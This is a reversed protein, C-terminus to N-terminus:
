PTPCSGSPLVQVIDRVYLHRTVGRRHLVSPPDASVDGYVRVLAPLALQLVGTVALRERQQAAQAQYTPWWLTDGGIGDCPRFLDQGAASWLNGVHERAPGETRVAASACATLFGCLLLTAVPCRIKM